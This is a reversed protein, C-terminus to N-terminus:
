VKHLALLVRPPLARESYESDEVRSLGAVLNRVAARRLIRVGTGSLADALRDLLWGRNVNMLDNALTIRWDGRDRLVFPELLIKMHDAALNPAYRSFWSVFRDQGLVRRMLDAVAWEAPMSEEGGVQPHGEITRNEYWLLAHRRLTALFEEDHRQRAYEAMMAFGSPMTGGRGAFGLKPLFDLTRRRLEDVLPQLLGQWNVAEPTRLRAFEASLMMVYGWGGPRGFSQRNPKAFYAIEAAINEETLVERFRSTIGAAQGLGPYTRLLRAIMWHNAVSTNWDFCGHFVPHNLRPSLPDDTGLRVQAPSAPYARNIWSLALRAFQEARSVDMAPAMSPELPRAMARSLAAGGIMGTASLLLGRRGILSRIAGSSCRGHNDIM